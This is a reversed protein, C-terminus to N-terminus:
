QLQLLLQFVELKLYVTLTKNKMLIMVVRASTILDAMTFNVVQLNNSGSFQFHFYQGSQTSVNTYMINKVTLNAAGASITSVTTLSYLDATTINEYQCIIPRKNLDSKQAFLIQYNVASDMTHADSSMYLNKVILSKTINDSDIPCLSTSDITLVNRATDEQRAFARSTFNDVTVNFLTQINFFSTQLVIFRQGKQTFNRVTVQGWTQSYPTLSCDSLLMIGENLYDTILLSNTIEINAPTPSRIAKGYYNITVREDSKMHITAQPGLESSNKASYTSITLNFAGVIFNQAVYLRLVSFTGEKILIQYPKTEGPLYNYLEQIAKQVVQHANSLTLILTHDLQVSLVFSKLLVDIKTQITANVTKALAVPRILFNVQFVSNASEKAAILLFNMMRVGEALTKQHANLVDKQVINVSRPRYIM